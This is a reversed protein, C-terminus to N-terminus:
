GLFHKLMRCIRLSIWIRELSYNKSQTVKKEGCSCEWLGDEKRNDLFWQLGKSIDSDDQKFGLLALSEM